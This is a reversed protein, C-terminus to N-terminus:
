RNAQRKGARTEAFPKKYLEEGDACGQAKFETKTAPKWGTSVLRNRLAVRADNNLAGPKPVTQYAIEIAETM